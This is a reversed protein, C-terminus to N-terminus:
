ARSLQSSRTPRRFMRVTAVVTVIGLAIWGSLPNALYVLVLGAFLLARFHINVWIGRHM